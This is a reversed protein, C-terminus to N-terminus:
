LSVDQLSQDIEQNIKEDGSLNALNSELSSLNQEEDSLGTVPAAIEGVENLTTDLEQTVADDQASLALDTDLNNLEAINKDIDKITISKVVPAAPVRSSAQNKSLSLMAGLAAVLAFLVITLILINKSMMNSNQM